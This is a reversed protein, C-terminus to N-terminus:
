MRQHRPGGGAPATGGISDFPCQRPCTGGHLGHSPNAAKVEDHVTAGDGTPGPSARRSMLQLIKKSFEM